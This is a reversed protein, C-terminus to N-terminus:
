RYCLGPEHITSFRDTERRPVQRILGRSSLIRCRWAVYSLATALEPWERDVWLARFDLNPWMRAFIEIATVPLGREQDMAALIQADVSAQHQQVPSATGIRVRWGEKPGTAM